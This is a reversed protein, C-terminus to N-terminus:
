NAHPMPNPRDEIPDQYQDHVEAQYRVQDGELKQLVDAFKEQMTMKKSSDQIYENRGSRTGTKENSSSHQMQGGSTQM